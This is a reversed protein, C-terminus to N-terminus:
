NHNTCGDGTHHQTGDAGGHCGDGESHGAPPTCPTYGPPPTPTPSPQKCSTTCNAAAANAATTAAIAAATAATLQAYAAQEKTVMSFGKFMLTFIAPAIIGTIAVCVLLELLGFGRDGRLAKRHAEYKCGYEHGNLISGCKCSIPTTDEPDLKTFKIDAMVNGKTTEDLFEDVVKWGFLLEWTDSIYQDTDACVAIYRNPTSTPYFWFLIETHAPNVLFPKM